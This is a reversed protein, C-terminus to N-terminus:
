KPPVILRGDELFSKEIRTGGVQCSKFGHPILYNKVSEGKEIHYPM